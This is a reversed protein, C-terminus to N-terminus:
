EEEVFVADPFADLLAAEASRPTADPLRRIEDIDTPEDDHTPEAPVEARSSSRASRPTTPPAQDRRTMPRGDAAPTPDALTEVVLSCTTGSLRHLLASFEDLYESLRKGESANKVTLVLVGDRVSPKGMRLVARRMGSLESVVASEWQAVLEELAVVDGAPSGASSAAPTGEGRASPTPRPPAPRPTGGSSDRMVRGGLVARGTAPNVPVPVDPVAPREAVERELRELRASLGELGNDLQRHVLRLLAVELVVRQDPANRMELTASGLAEIVRVLRALGIRDAQTSLSAINEQQVHLVEPAMQSLFADRLHRVLEEAIGRPDRGAAVSRAVATLLRGPDHSVLGEVFDEIPFPAELRGGTAALLELASLTDRASGGGRRIVADVGEADLDIGADTAVWRVHDALEDAAILNFQLHQTRSRITEGVKDPDTTALIFVVHSPPEELTKLFAAEAAKSLMHVEDLIVVRNRGPTSLALRQTLERIDNVSNNTASDLELVDFSSGEQVALCSGCTCCPEGDVPSECNLAKALIRATTTKGTGRPGSFLYAHGVRDNRVANKLALAVHDQGRLESFRRPRYRRYLAQYEVDEAV